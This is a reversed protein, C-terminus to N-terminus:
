EKAMRTAAFWRNGAPDELIALRDGYLQDAPPLLSIAGAAMARHYVADVDDTHMYFGFPRAGEDSESMEMMAEGIRVFAHVIRGSARHVGELEAGFAHKLFDILPPANAAFLCTTVHRLGVGVYNGAHRTAIFWINGFPDKVFAAREGYPRDAPEGAAPSGLISAGADLARRYTADCDRVYVHLAAPLEQGRLSEGGMVLLDTDGIRVSAVFGDPGHPHRGTEEAGFTEKMFEILGAGDPVCIFPAIVHVAALEAAASEPPTSTTMRTRRQIEAQLERILRTKFGQDPLNRLEGAIEMLASLTPDHPAQEAGTLMGDIAQDLKEILARDAM